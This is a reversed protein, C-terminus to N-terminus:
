LVCQITFDTVDTQIAVDKNNDLDVFTMKDNFRIVADPSAPNVIFCAVGEGSPNLNQASTAFVRGSPDFFLSGLTVPDVNIPISTAASSGSLDNTLAFTFLEQSAKIERTSLTPLAFAGSLIALTTFITFQM